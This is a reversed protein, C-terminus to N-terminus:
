DKKWPVLGELAGVYRIELAASGSDGKSTLEDGVVYAWGPWRKVVTAEVWGHRTALLIRAGVPAVHEVTIVEGPRIEWGTATSDTEAIRIAMAKAPVACGGLLCALLLLGGYFLMLGLICGLSIGKIAANPDKEPEAM